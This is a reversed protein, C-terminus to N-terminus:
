QTSTLPFRRVHIYRNRLSFERVPDTNILPPRNLYCGSTVHLLSLLLYEFFYSFLNPRTSKSQIRITEEQRCIILQGSDYLPHHQLVEVLQDSNVGVTWVDQREDPSAFGGVHQEYNEIVM